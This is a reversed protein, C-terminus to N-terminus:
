KLIAIFYMILLIIFLTLIVMNYNNYKYIVEYKTIYKNEENINNM